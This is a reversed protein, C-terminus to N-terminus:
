TILGLTSGHDWFVLTSINKYGARCPVFEMLLLVQEDAVPAVGEPGDRFEDASIDDEKNVGTAHNLALEHVSVSKESFDIYNTLMICGMGM